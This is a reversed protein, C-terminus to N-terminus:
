RAASSRLDGLDGVDAECRPPPVLVTTRGGERRVALTGAQVAFSCGDFRNESAWRVFLDLNAPSFFAAHDRTADVAEVFEGAMRRANVLTSQLDRKTLLVDSVLFADVSRVARSLAPRLPATSAFLARGVLTGAEKYVTKMVTPREIPASLGRAQARAADRERAREEARFDRERAALAVRGGFASAKRFAQVLEPLNSALVTRAQDFAQIAPDRALAAMAYRAQAITGHLDRLSKLHSAREELLERKAAFEQWKAMGLHNSGCANGILYRRGDEDRFFYGRNHPHRFACPVNEGLEYRGEYTIWQETPPASMTLGELALPNRIVFTRELLEDDSLDPINVKTYAGPPVGVRRAMVGAALLRRRARADLRAGVLITTRDIIAEELGTMRLDSGSFDFGRLDHYALPWGSLDKGRFDTARDFGCLICLEAFGTDPAATLVEAMRGAARAIPGDDADSM